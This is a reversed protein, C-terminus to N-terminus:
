HSGMICLVLDIYNQLGWNLSDIQLMPVLYTIIQSRACLALKEEFKADSEVRMLYSKQVKEDLVKYAKSLLFGDLEFKWDVAQM